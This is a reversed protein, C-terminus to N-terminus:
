IIYYIWTLLRSYHEMLRQQTFDNADDNNEINPDTNITDIESPRVISSESVFADNINSESGDVTTDDYDLFETNENKDNVEENNQTRWYDSIEGYLGPSENISDVYETLKKDELTTNLQSVLMEEDSVTNKVNFHDHYDPSGTKLVLHTYKKLMKGEQHLHPAYLIIRLPLAKPEENQADENTSSNNDINTQNNLLIHDGTGTYSETMGSNSITSSIQIQEQEEKVESTTGIEIDTTSITSPNTSFPTITSTSQKNDIKKKDPDLNGNLNMNKLLYEEYDMSDRDVSSQVNCPGCPDDKYTSLIAAKVYPFYLISWPVIVQYTLRGCRDIIVVEDKLARFNEWIRLKLNDQIFIIDYKSKTSDDLVRQDIDFLYESKWVNKSIERWTKIEVSNETNGEPLGSPPAVCFFLINTFGSKDLRRKLLKLMITQRYSYYWSPDFFAIVNVHALQGKWLNTARCQEVYGRNERSEEFQRFHRSPTEPTRPSRQGICGAVSLIILIGNFISM